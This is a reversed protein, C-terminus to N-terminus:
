HSGCSHSIGWGRMLATERAKAVFQDWTLDKGGSIQEFFDSSSLSDRKDFWAKVTEKNAELGKSWEDATIVGDGNKDLQKYLKELKDRSEPSNLVEALQLMAEEMEEPKLVVDSNKASNLNTMNYRSSPDRFYKRYVDNKNDKNQAEKLETKRNSGSVNKTYNFLAERRRIVRLVADQVEPASGRQGPTTSMKLNADRVSDYNFCLDACDFCHLFGRNIGLGEPWFPEQLADGVRTVLVDGDLAEGGLKAANVMLAAYNSQKRESFDFLSLQGPVMDQNELEPVFAAVAKRAYAVLKKSDINKTDWAETGEAAAATLAGWERLPKLETTMVFYHTAQPAFEGTSCYYVM